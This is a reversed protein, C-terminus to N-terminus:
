KDSGPLKEFVSDPVEKVVINAVLAGLSAMNTIPIAAASLLSAGWGNQSPNLATMWM